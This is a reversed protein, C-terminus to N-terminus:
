NRAHMFNAQLLQKTTTQGHSTIGTDTCQLLSAQLQINVVSSLGGCLHCSLSLTISAPITRSAVAQVHHLVAIGDDSEAAEVDAQQDATAVAAELAATEVTIKTHQQSGAQTPGAPSCVLDTDEAKRTLYLATGFTLRGQTMACDPPM